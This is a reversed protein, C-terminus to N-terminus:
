EGSEYYITKGTKKAWDHEMIAGESCRWDELMWINECADLMPLTIKMYAGWGFGYPLIAPNMVIFGKRKLIKEARKFKPVYDPDGSISGSIFITEKDM